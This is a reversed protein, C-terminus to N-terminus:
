NKHCPDLCYGDSILVLVMVIPSCQISNKINELVWNTHCPDLCFGDSILVLVMVIPPPPYHSYRIKSMGWSDLVWNKHCPNLCCGDSILVLVMVIPSCQILNKINGLVWNKHCSDLCCGDSISVLVMVIPSQRCHSYRIKSMGWSGIRTAHIWVVAM